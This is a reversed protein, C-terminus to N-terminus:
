FGREMSSNYRWAVDVLQSVVNTAVSAAYSSIIEDAEDVIDFRVYSCRLKYCGSTLVIRCYDHTLMAEDAKNLLEDRAQEFTKIEM